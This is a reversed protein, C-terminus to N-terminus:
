NATIKQFVLILKDASRACIIVDAGKRAFLTTIHKGLGGSAGTILVNKNNVDFLSM